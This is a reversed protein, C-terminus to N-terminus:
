CNAGLVWCGGWVGVRPLSARATGAGALSAVPAVAPPWSGRESPLVGHQRVKNEALRPRLEREERGCDHVASTGQTLAVM